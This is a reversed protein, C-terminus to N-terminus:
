SFEMTSTLLFFSQHVNKYIIFMCGVARFLLGSSFRKASKKRGSVSMVRRDRVQGQRQEERHSSTGQRQNRSLHERLHVTGADQLRDADVPSTRPHSLSDRQLEDPTRTWSAETYRIVQYTKYAGVVKRCKIKQTHVHINFRNVSKKLDCNRLADIM